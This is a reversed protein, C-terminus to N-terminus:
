KWSEQYDECLLEGRGRGGHGPLAELATDPHQSGQWMGATLKPVLLVEPQGSCGGYSRCTVTHFYLGCLFSTSM